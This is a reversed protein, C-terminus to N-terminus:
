IEEIEDEGDEKAKISSMEESIEDMFHNQLIDACIQYVSKVPHQQLDEIIDLINETIFAILKQYIEQSESVNQGTWFKAKHLVKQIIQLYCLLLQANQTQM